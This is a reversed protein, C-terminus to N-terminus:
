RLKELPIGEDMADVLAANSTLDVGPRPGTDGQFVPLTVRPREVTASALERRLAEEVFSGLTEGRESARQKALALLEDDITVTTRM